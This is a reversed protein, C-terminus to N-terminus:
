RVEFGTAGVPPEELVEVRTVRARSPGERCWAVLALVADTPGEFIAEVRGDALNAVWGDLGNARAEARCGDRFWVNQVRGSVWVHRRAREPENVVADSRAPRATSPQGAGM